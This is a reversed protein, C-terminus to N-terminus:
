YLMLEFGTSKSNTRNVLSITRILFFERYEEDVIYVHNNSM